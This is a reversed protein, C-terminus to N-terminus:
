ENNCSTSGKAAVRTRGGINTCSLRKDATAFNTGGFTLQLVTVGGPLSKLRGVASFQLKTLTSSGEVIADIASIPGQVRLIRDTGNTLGDGNLDHFVIWGSSWGTGSVGAATSCAPPVAEPLDSRCLVVNGGRRISESRAFSSDALFSNINSTIASSQIMSKFSPAAVAALIAVIAIVVMVEILTFGRLKRM